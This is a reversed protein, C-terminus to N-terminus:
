FVTTSQDFTGNDWALLVSVGLMPSDASGVGGIGGMLNDEDFLQDLDTDTPQLGKSTYLSDGATAARAAEDDAGGDTPETKIDQLLEGNASVNADAIGNVMTAATAVTSSMASAACSASDVGATASATPDKGYSDSRSDAARLLAMQISANRAVNLDHSAYLNQRSGEHRHNKYALTKTSVDDNVKHRKM